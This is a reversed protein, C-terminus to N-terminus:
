PKYILEENTLAFYLNQLQHVYNIIPLNIYEPSMQPHKEKRSADVYFVKDGDMCVSIFFDHDYIREIEYHKVWDDYKDKEFGFKLLWEETLPTADHALNFGKEDESIWKLDQWDITAPLVDGEATQYNVTNGIRLESAKM